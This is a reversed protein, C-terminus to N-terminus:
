APDLVWTQPKADEERFNGHTFVLSSVLHHLLSSRLSVATSLLIQDRPRQFRLGEISAIARFREGM